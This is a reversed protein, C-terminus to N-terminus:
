VRENNQLEEDFSELDGMVAHLGKPVRVEYYSFDGSLACRRVGQESVWLHRLIEGVSLAGPEPKWAMHEPRLMAFVDRTRARIAEKQKLFFEQLTMERNYTLRPASNRHRVRTPAPTRGFQCM